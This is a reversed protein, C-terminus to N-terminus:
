LDGGESKSWIHILLLVGVVPLLGRKSGITPSIRFEILFYKTHANKFISEYPFKGYM